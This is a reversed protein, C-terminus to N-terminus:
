RPYWTVGLTGSLAGRGISFAAYDSTFNLTLGAGAQVSLHDTLFLEATLPLDLSTRTFNGGGISVNSFTTALAAGASVGLRGREWFRWAAGVAPTLFFRGSSLFGQGGLGLEFTWRGLRATGALGGEGFRNRYGLGLRSPFQTSTVRATVPAAPEVPKADEKLVYDIGSTDRGATIEIVRPSTVAEFGPLPPLSLTYSGARLSDFRYSGDSRTTVTTSRSTRNDLIGIPIGALGLGSSRITVRGTLSGLVPQIATALVYDQFEPEVQDFVSTPAALFFVLFPYVRRNPEPELKVHVVSVTTPTRGGTFYLGNGTSSRFVMNDAPYGSLDFATPGTGYAGDEAFGSAAASNFSERDLDIQPTFIAVFIGARLGSAATKIHGRWFAQPPTWPFQSEDAGEWESWREATNKPAYALRIRDRATPIGTQTLAIAPLFLLLVSLGRKNRNTV